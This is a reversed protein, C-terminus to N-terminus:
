ASVLKQSILAARRRHAFAIFALHWASHKTDNTARTEAVRSQIPDTL